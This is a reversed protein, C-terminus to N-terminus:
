SLARNIWGSLASLTDTALAELDSVWLLRVPRKFVDRFTLACLTTYGQMRSRRDGNEKAM